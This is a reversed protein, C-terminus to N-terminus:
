AYARLDCIRTASIFAEPRVFYGNSFYWSSLTGGSPVNIKALEFLWGLDYDSYSICVFNRHAFTELKLYWRM